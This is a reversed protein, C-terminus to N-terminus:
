GGADTLVSKEGLHKLRELRIPEEAVLWPDQSLKAYAQAFYPTAEEARGLALLCEGIEETTYGDSGGLPKWAEELAQQMDLAKHLQGLSRLTRAICWKAILIERLDGQAQRWELAKQFAELALQYQGQEHYSWGINNYLGGGWTRARADSTREVLELAKLNWYLKEEPPSVIALMHAADLAHFDEQAAQRQAWAAEFLPRAEEPKGSSNFVRGRELLYRIRARSLNDSLRAQAQDLTQHAAAFDRQLGQARAIQTLLEIYYSPDSSTEAQSLLLRFAAETQAPHNYDWLADFDPLTSGYTM